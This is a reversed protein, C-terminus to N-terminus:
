LCMPMVCCSASSKPMGTIAKGSFSMRVTHDCFLKGKYFNRGDKQETSPLPMPKSFLTVPGQVTGNGSCYEVLTSVFGHLTFWGILVM